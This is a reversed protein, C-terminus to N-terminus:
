RVISTKLSSSRQFFTGGLLRVQLDFRYRSCSMGALTPAKPVSPEGAFFWVFLSYRTSPMMLRHSQKSVCTSVTGNSTKFNSRSTRVCMIAQLKRRNGGIQTLRIRLYEILFWDVYKRTVLPLHHQRSPLSPLRRNWVSHAKGPALIRLYLHM